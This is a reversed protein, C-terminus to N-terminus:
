RALRVQAGLLTRSTHLRDKKAKPESFDSLAYDEFILYALGVVVMLAGGVLSTKNIIM